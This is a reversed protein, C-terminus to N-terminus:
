EGFHADRRPVIPRDPFSLLSLIRGPPEDDTRGSRHRARREARAWEDAIPDLGIRERNRNMTALSRRTALERRRRDWVERALFGTMSAAAALMTGVPGLLEGSLGLCALLIIGILSDRIM